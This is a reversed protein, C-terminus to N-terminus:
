LDAYKNNAYPCTKPKNNKVNRLKLSNRIIFFCVVGFGIHWYDM